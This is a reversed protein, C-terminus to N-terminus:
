QRDGEDTLSAKKDDTALLSAIEQAAELYERLVDKLIDCAQLIRLNSVRYFVYLGQRRAEVLRKDRMLALHQSLSSKQMRTLEALEDVSKEGGRLWHLIELRKPSALTKCIEAHLQFLRQQVEDM